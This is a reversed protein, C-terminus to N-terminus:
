HQAPILLSYQTQGKAVGLSPCVNWGSGSTLSALRGGAARVLCSPFPVSYNRLSVAPYSKQFVTFTEGGKPPLM